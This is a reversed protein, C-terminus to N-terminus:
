REEGEPVDEAPAAGQQTGPRAGPLGEPPAGPGAMSGAEAPGTIRAVAELGAVVLVGGVMAAVVALVEPDGGGRAAFGGPGFLEVGVPKGAVEDAPLRWPWLKLLAGAMFGCLVALTGEYYRALLWSLFRSFLLLGVTCGAALIGLFVVDLASIAAVVAPYLGLLLMVFSGSVGPLIWACVAIAGGLFITIPNVPLLMPTLFAAAAGIAVGGAALGGRRATWPRVFRGVFVVSALILGFFFGWVQLERHELLWQVIRALALIGTAMGAGLVLMFGFNGAEWLARIRGRVLLGVLHVGIGRITGVLELYIGTIFAITGGSVGPVLEAVGMAIGRLYLGVWAAPGTRRVEEGEKV